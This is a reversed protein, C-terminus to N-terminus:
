SSLCFFVVTIAVVANTDVMLVRGDFVVMVSILGGVDVLVRARLNLVVDIDVSVSFGIAIVEVNVNGLGVVMDVADVICLVITIGRLEIIVVGVM